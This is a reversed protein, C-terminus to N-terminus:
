HKKKEEEVQRGHRGRSQARVNYLVARKVNSDEPLNSVDSLPVNTLQVQSADVGSKALESGLVGQQPIVPPPTIRAGGIAVNPDEGPRDEEEPGETPTFLAPGTSQGGSAYLIQNNILNQQYQLAALQQPSLQPQEQNRLQPQPIYQVARGDDRSQPGYQLTNPTVGLAAGEEERLIHSPQAGYQLTNPTVGLRVGGEERILHPSQPGYELTNPTVGLGVNGEERLIHPSQAGYQLTNPTVGLGIGGGERILHPSQPGYQLTNPTVGLGARGYERLIHQSQPVYHLSDPTVNIGVSGEERLINPSNAVTGLGPTTLLTGPTPRLRAIPTKPTVSIEPPIINASPILAPNLHLQRNDIALQDHILRPGLDVRDNTGVLGHAALGQQHIRNTVDPIVPTPTSHIVPLPSPTPSDYVLQPGLHIHDTSGVLGKVAIGKQIVPSVTSSVIPSVTSSVVETSPVVPLPLATSVEHVLHNNFGNVTVGHIGPAVPAGSSMLVPAATSSIIPLPSATEVSTTAINPALSATAAAGHSASVSAISLHPSVSATAVANPSTATVSSIGTAVVAPAVLDTEPVLPLPSATVAIPAATVAIPAVVPAAGIIPTGVVPAGKVVTEALVAPGTITTSAPGAIISQSGQTVIRGSPGILDSSQKNEVPPAPVAVAEVPVVPEVPVVEEAVVIPELDTHVEGGEAAATIVSGDPGKIITESNPGKFLGGIGGPHVPLSPAAIAIAVYGLALLSLMFKM